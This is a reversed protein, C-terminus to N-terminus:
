RKIAKPAPMAANLGKKNENKESATSRLISDNLIQKALASPCFLKM